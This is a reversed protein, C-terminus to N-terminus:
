EAASTDTTTFEWTKPEQMQNGATDAVGSVSVSYTTNNALSDQPIFRATDAVVDYNGDALMGNSTNELQFNGSGVSNEMVPESFAVVIEADLSVNSAGEGPSVSTVRPPVDITTFQWQVQGTMKNGNLDAVSDVTVQYTSIQELLSDQPTFVATAGNVSYSGREISDNAAFVVRFRERRITAPPIDESFEVRIQSNLPVETAGEEPSFSVVEPPESEVRVQGSECATFAVLVVLILGFSKNLM